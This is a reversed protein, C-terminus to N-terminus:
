PLRFRHIQLSNYWELQHGDFKETPTMDAKNLTVHVYTCRNNSSAALVPYHVPHFRVAVLVRRLLSKERARDIVVNNEMYNLQNPTRTASLLFINPGQNFRYYSTGSKISAVFLSPIFKGVISAAIFYAVTRSKSALSSTLLYQIM